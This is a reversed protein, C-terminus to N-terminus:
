PSTEGSETLFFAGWLALAYFDCPNDVCGM